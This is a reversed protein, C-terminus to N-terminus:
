SSADPAPGPSGHRAAAHRAASARLADRVPKSPAPGHTSATVREALDHLTVHTHQSVDVLILWADTPTCQYVAMLVGLAMDINARSALARRLTKVENRLLALEAPMGVDPGAPIDATRDTGDQPPATFGVSDM